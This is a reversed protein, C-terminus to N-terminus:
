ESDYNQNRQWENAEKIIGEKNPEANIFAKFSLEYAKKNDNFDIFLKDKSNFVGNKMSWMQTNYVIKDSPNETFTISDGSIRVWNMKMAEDYLQGYYGNERIRKEIDIAKNKDNRILWYLFMREHLSLKLLNLETKINIKKTVNIVKGSPLLWYQKENKSILLKAIKILESAIKNM